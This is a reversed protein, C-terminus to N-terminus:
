NESREKERDLSVRMRLKDIDTAKFLIYLSLDWNIM